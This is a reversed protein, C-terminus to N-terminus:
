FAGSNTNYEVEPACPQLSPLVLPSIVGSLLLWSALAPPLLVPALIPPLLVPAMVPPQGDRRLERHRWRSRSRSCYCGGINRARHPRGQLLGSRLGRGGRHGAESIDVGPVDRRGESGWM